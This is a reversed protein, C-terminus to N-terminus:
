HHRHERRCSNSRWPDSRKAAVDRPHVTRVSEAHPGCGLPRGARPNNRVGAPPRHVPRHGARSHLECLRRIQVAVAGARRVRRHRRVPTSRCDPRHALLAISAMGLGSLLIVVPAITGAVKGRLLDVLLSQAETVENLWAAHLAQPVQGMPGALCAPELSAFAALGIGGAIALVGLKRSWSWESGYRMVLVHGTSGCAALAVLNLSLADCTIIFLRAPAVTAALALILTAALGIVFGASPAAMRRDLLGWGCALATLVFVPALAEYGIALALGCLAGPWRWARINPPGAWMLLAATVTTVIMASHHDIRGPAFQYYALLGLAALALSFYSVTAGHAARTTRAITWLMAGLMALPWVTVLAKQADAQSLVLGFLGLLLAMPGDLLRSWHSVLGNAGGLASTTVEFWPAGALLERVQIFRLADDSDIFEFARGSGKALLALGTATTLAVLWWVWLPVHRARVAFDERSPADTTAITM